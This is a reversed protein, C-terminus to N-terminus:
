ESEKRCSYDKVKVLLEALKEEVEPTMPAYGNLLSCTYPYSLGLYHAITKVPVGLRHNLQVKFWTERPQLQDPLNISRKKPM